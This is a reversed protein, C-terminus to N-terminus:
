NTGAKQWPRGGQTLHIKPKIPRQCLREHEIGERAMVDDDIYHKILGMETVPGTRAVLKPHADRGTIVLEVATPKADILSRQM